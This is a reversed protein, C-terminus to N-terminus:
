KGGPLPELRTEQLIAYGSNSCVKLPRHVDWGKLPATLAEQDGIMVRLTDRFEIRYAVPKGPEIPAKRNALTSWKRAKVDYHQLSLQGEYFLLAAVFTEDYAFEWRLDCGESVTVTGSVAYGGAPPEAVLKVGARMMADGAVLLGGQRWEAAETELAWTPLEGRLLKALQEEARGWDKGLVLELAARRGVLMPESSKPARGLVRRAWGSSKATLLQAIMAQRAQQEALEALSNADPMACWERFGLARQNAVMWRAPSRRADYAVDVDVKGGPNRLQELVAFAAIEALWPDREAAPQRQRVVMGAVQLVITDKTVASLGLAALVGNKWRPRVLVHAEVNGAVVFQERAYGVRAQKAEVERFPAEDFHVHVKVADSRQSALLKYTVPLASEAVALAEDALRARLEPLLEDGYLRVVVKDGVREVFPEEQASLTACCVSVVSWM